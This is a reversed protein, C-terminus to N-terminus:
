KVSTGKKVTPRDPSARRAAEQVLDQADESDGSLRLALRYPPELSEMLLTEFEADTVREHSPTNPTVDDPPTTPMGSLVSRADPPNGIEKAM